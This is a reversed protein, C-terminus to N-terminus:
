NCSCQIFVPSNVEAKQLPPDLSTRPVRVGRTRIIEIEHLNQSFKAFDHAISNSDQLRRQTTAKRIRLAEM